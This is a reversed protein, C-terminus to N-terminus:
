GDVSREGEGFLNELGLDRAIADMDVNKASHAPHASHASHKLEDRQNQAELSVIIEIAKIKVRSNDGDLFANLSDVIHSKMQDSIPWRKKIGFEVLRLDSHFRKKDEFLM